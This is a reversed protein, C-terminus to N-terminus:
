SRSGGLHRPPPALLHGRREQCLFFPDRYPHKWFYPSFFGLDDWKNMPNPVMIFRIFEGDMKPHYFGVIKPCVRIYVGPFFGVHHVRGSVLLERMFIM